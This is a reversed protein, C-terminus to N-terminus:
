AVARISEQIRAIARDKRTPGSAIVPAEFIYLSPHCGNTAGVEDEIKILADLTRKWTKATAPKPLAVEFDIPYHKMEDRMVNVLVAAEGAALTATAFVKIIQGPTHASEAVVIHVNV